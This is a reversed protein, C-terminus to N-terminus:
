DGSFVQVGSGDSSSLVQIQAPIRNKLEAVHSIIGVTRGMQQVRYLANMATDLTEPDLSGFGEDIFISDLYVGGSHTQVVDSLGFALSLSALFLEGGSLTDVPRPGGLCADFVELDLGTYGRSAGGPAIRFLSYRGGSLTGFYLNASTLIDDLMIGLVFTPLPVKRGNGGSILQSVRATESYLKRLKEEEKELKKLEELSYSLARCSQKLAGFREFAEKRKTGTERESEELRSLDPQIKDSVEKEAECLEKQSSSLAADYEKIEREWLSLSEEAPPLTLPKEKPWGAAEKKEELSKKASDVGACAEEWAARVALLREEAAACEQAASSLGNELKRARLELQSAKKLMEGYRNQVSSLERDEEPLTEEVTRVGAEAEALARSLTEKKSRYEELAKEAEAEQKKLQEMRSLAAPRKAQLATLENLKKERAFLKEEAEAEPIFTMCCKKQESFLGEAAKARAACEASERQCLSYIEREKKVEEQLIAAQKKEPLNEKPRSPAPHSLSGCVPCPEDPKLGASLYASIDRKLAEQTWEWKETLAALRIRVREEKEQAKLLATEFLKTEKERQHLLRYGACMDKLSQVEISLSALEGASADITELYERGKQLRASAFLVSGEFAKEEKEAASLKERCDNVKGRYVLLREAQLSSQKLLAAKANCEAAQRKLLAAEKGAEEAAALSRKAKERREAVARLEEEKVAALDKARVAAFRFPELLMLLTGEKHKTRLTEMKEKKEKLACVREECRKLRAFRELLLRADQLEKEARSHEKELEASQAQAEEARREEEELRYALDSGTEAKERRLITEAGVRLEDAQKKLEKEMAQAKLVIRQWRETGFLTQFIKAKESTTSLLLRRFEGQPLVMVQTFQECTLGLLEQAKERVRAEAGSLLLKWEERERRYCAHEERYERRETGRVTHLRLLRFFRYTEKNLQFIFDVFTPLEDPATITRMDPFSRRGGTARCYLAFSMADLLTTKGGGTSGSILFLRSEGLKTFDVVTEHLYPGFAQVTVSVPKM